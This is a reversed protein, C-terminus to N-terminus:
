PTDLARTRTSAKGVGSADHQRRQQMQRRNGLCAERGIRLGWEPKGVRLEKDIAVKGVALEGSPATDKCAPSKGVPATDQGLPSEDVPATDKCALAKVVPAKDSAAKGM